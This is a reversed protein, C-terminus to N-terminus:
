GVGGPATIWLLMPVQPRPVPTGAFTADRAVMEVLVSWVLPAAIHWPVNALDPAALANLAVTGAVGGHAIWRWGIRPQGARCSAIYALSAGDDGGASSLGPCRGLRWEQQAGSLLPRKASAGRFARGSM